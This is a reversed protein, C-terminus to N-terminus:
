FIIKWFNYMLLIIILGSIGQIFTAFTHTKYATKIDLGGMQSVIWFYSDNAHSVTMSGVGLSVIVWVKGLENDMGLIPLLPFFISSTTIIAVTSSGQTTKLAASILFPLIIGFQPNISIKELYSDIPLQQIIIGLTGGMGTLILIPAANIIGQKIFEDLKKFNKNKLLFFSFIMGIMLASSPQTIFDILPYEIYSSFITGIGMLVIPIVIPAISLKFGPLDIDIDLENKFERHKLNNTNKSKSLSNAYIAGIIILLFSIIGGIVILLFINKLELNAAAALPGPTPPILVHPAYLGTSLAVTLSVLPTKTKESLSKNLSNLIVFASDCFVPISVIYGIFSVVFPIPLNSVSKIIKNAISKTANSKELIVGIITGYIILLGISEFTRGFGRGILKGIEESPIGIGFALFISASLLILFPHIKLYTSGFIIWIVCISLIFLPFIM